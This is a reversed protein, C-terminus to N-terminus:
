QWVSNTNRSQGFRETVQALAFIGAQASDLLVVSTLVLAGTAVVDAALVSASAVSEDLPV